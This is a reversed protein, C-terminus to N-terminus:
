LGFCKLALRTECSGGARVVYLALIDLRKQPQCQSKCILPHPVKLFPYNQSFKMSDLRTEEIMRVGYVVQLDSAILKRCGHKACSCSKMELM